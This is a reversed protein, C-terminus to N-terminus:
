VLRESREEREKGRKRENDIRALMEILFNRPRKILFNWQMILDVVINVNLQM